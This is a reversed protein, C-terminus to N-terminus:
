IKQNNSCMNDLLSTSTRYHGFLWPSRQQCFFALLYITFVYLFNAYMLKRSNMKSSNGVFTCLAWTRGQISSLCTHEYVVIDERGGVCKALPMHSFKSTNMKVLFNRTPHKLALIGGREWTSFDATRQVKIMQICWTSLQHKLTM